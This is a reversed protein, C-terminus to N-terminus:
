DVRCRTIPVLTWTQEDQGLPLRAEGSMRLPVAPEDGGVRCLAVSALRPRRNPLKETALREPMGAREWRM